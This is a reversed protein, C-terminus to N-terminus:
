GERRAMMARSELPGARTVSIASGKSMDRLATELCRLTSSSAPRTLRSFCPRSWTMSNRPSGSLCTAPQTCSYSRNQFSCRSAKWDWKTSFFLLRLDHVAVVVLDHVHGEPAGDRRARRLDIVGPEAGLGGAVRPMPGILRDELGLGARQEIEQAAFVAGLGRVVAAERRQVPGALRLEGPHRGVGAAELRHHGHGELGLALVRNQSQVMGVQRVIVEAAQMLQTPAHAERREGVMEDGFTSSSLSFTM